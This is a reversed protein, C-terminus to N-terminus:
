LANSFSIGFSFQAISFFDSRDVLLNSVDINSNYLEGQIKDRRTKYENVLANARETEYPHEQIYKVVFDPMEEGAQTVKDRLAQKEDIAKKMFDLPLPVFQSIPQTDRRDWFRSAM